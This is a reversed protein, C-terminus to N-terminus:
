KAMDYWKQAEELDKEVCDGNTYCDGLRIQSPKHGNEAAKKWWEVAQVFDQPVGNGEYYCVGLCAMASVRNNEAAKQYWAAAQQYDQAVGTGTYYCNALCSQAGAHNNEAAKRYWEVAKEYDQPVGTGSYFCFAINAQSDNHGNEAAKAFWEAAKEDNQAVFEGAAYYSALLAQADVYNNEASKTLWAIKEAENEAYDTMIYQAEANNNEAAKAFWKKAKEADQPFGYRGNYYGWASFLQAESYGNEASKQILEMAKEEDKPIGYGNAYYFALNWQAEADNNESGETLISVIQQLANEADASGNEKARSFWEGAERFDKKVGYGNAYAIGINYQADANGNYYKGAAKRFWELATEWDQRINVYIAGIQLQAAQAVDSNQGCAAKEYWELAKDIDKRVIPINAFQLGNEFYFGLTFQATADGNEAAREMWAFQKNSDESVKEGYIEVLKMAAQAHGQEAAKTYWYEAQEPNKEDGELYYSGLQFQAQPDGAEADALYDEPQPQQRMSGLMKVLSQVMDERQESNSNNWLEMGRQAEPSLPQSMSEQLQKIANSAEHMQNRLASFVAKTDEATTEPSIEMMEHIM